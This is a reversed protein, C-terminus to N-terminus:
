DVITEAISLGLGAGGTERNRSPEGRYFAGTVRGLEDPALGPGRDLVAIRAAQEDCTVEIGVDSGYKFANDLLNRVARRILNPQVMAVCSAPAIVRVEKGLEGFERAIPGVLESLDVRELQERSRGSRALTLIDDLTASMEEITAIMREREDAPEVNEVRIRLSALPTRLDHGIAGLTRDKEEILGALRENMDNFAVLANRLDVPGTVRVEIPQNRGRFAEAARRLEHLPRAIRRAIFVAASLVFLYLLLSGLVLEPTILPLQRPVLLRANLWEGDILRASLLMARYPRNRSPSPGTAPAEDMAARVEASPVGASSLGERLRDETDERRRLQAVEGATSAVAYHSGRRSADSLVLARFEPPAQVYDAATSTFRAIAPGDIQARNFHEREILLYTLSVLQALLLAIGFLVAMQGVMSKPLLRRM